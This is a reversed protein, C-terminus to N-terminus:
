SQYYANLSVQYHLIDGQESVQIEQVDFLRTNTEIKELFSKFGEYSGELSVKINITGYGKTPLDGGPPSSITGLTFTINGTKIGSGGALGTITNVLEAYEFKQPLVFGFGEALKGLDQYAQITEKATKVLKKQQDLEKQLSDLNQRAEIASLAVPQDLLAIAMIAALFFVLSLFLSIFKKTSNGLM